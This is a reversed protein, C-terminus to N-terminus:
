YKILVHQNAARTVLNCESRYNFQLEDVNSNTVGLISGTMWHELERSYGNTNKYNMELAPAREGTRPDVVTAMPIMVGHFKSGSLLTPDNLLKWSTKNFTYSGRNFTKFGLSVAMDKGNAFQGFSGGTTLASAATINSALLDDIALDTTRDVYMAYEAPAGQKDLLVIIDDFDSLTAIASGQVIGRSEVASFYGESGDITGDIDISNTASQGLLMMMERKDLFRQRTDAESKVYWRYDGNYNVWGINTAQSGNVKYVEKLIMYKNTLKNVNSQVYMSQQDTGQAFLNGIIPVSGTATSAIAAGVTGALVKFEFTGSATTGASPTVATVIARIENNLLIVDNERIVNGEGSAYTLTGTTATSAIAATAGTFSQKPHLRTEEWWQVQDDAGNAKVAGTMQLFGTISQAGYTKVLAERNDPKNIQNIFDGLATYKAPDLRRFASPSFDTPGTAAM